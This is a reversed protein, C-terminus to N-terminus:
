DYNFDQIYQKDTVTIKCSYKFWCLSNLEATNEQLKEGTM